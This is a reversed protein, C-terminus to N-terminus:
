PRWAPCRVILHKRFRNALIEIRRQEGGIHTSRAAPAIFLTQNFIYLHPKRRQKNGGGRYCKRRSQGDAPLLKPQEREAATRRDKRAVGREM